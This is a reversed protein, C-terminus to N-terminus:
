RSSRSHAEGAEPTAHTMCTAGHKAPDLLAHDSVRILNNPYARFPPFRRLSERQGSRSGSSLLLSLVRTREWHRDIEAQM